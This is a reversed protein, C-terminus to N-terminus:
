VQFVAALVAHTHTSAVTPSIKCTTLVCSCSYLKISM